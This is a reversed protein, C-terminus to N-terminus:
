LYNSFTSLFTDVLNEQSLKNNILRQCNDILQSCVDPNNELYNYKEILDSFDEEIEVYHINPELYKEWYFEHEKNINKLKFIVRKSHLFSYMKTSYTHGPLDILYKYKKLDIFSLMSKDLPSYRNTSIYELNDPYKECFEIFKLRYPKSTDALYGFSGIKNIFPESYDNILQNILGYHINRLDELCVFSNKFNIEGELSDKIKIYLYSKSKLKTNLLYNMFEYQEEENIKYTDGNECNIIFTKKNEDFDIIYIGGPYETNIVLM